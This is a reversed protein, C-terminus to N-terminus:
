EAYTITIESVQAHGNSANNTFVIKNASGTWTVTDTAAGEVNGSNAVINSPNATKGEKKKITIATINTTENNSTITLTNSGYMRIHVPPTGNGSKYYAPNTGSSSPKSFDISSKANNFIVQINQATDNRSNSHTDGVLEKSSDKDIVKSASGISLVEVNATKLTYAATSVESTQGSKVAIAQLTGNETVTPKNADSYMNASSSGYNEKSLTGEKQWMWYIKTGDGNNSTLNITTNAEVASGGPVSFSVPLLPLTIQEVSGSANKYFQYTYISPNSQFTYVTFVNYFEIYRTSDGANKIYFGDTSSGAKELNWVSNDTFADALSLGNSETRSLYKGGNVFVYGDTGLTKVTFQTLSDTLVLGKISVTAETGSFGTGSASSSITTKGQPYYIAVVDNDSLTTVKQLYTNTDEGLRYVASAPLSFIGRTAGGDSVTKVAIANITVTDNQNGTIEIGKSADYKFATAPDASAKTAYNEKTIESGDTTYYFDVDLSDSTLYTVIGSVITQGEQTSSVSFKPTALSNAQLALSAKAKDNLESSKSPDKYFQFQFKTDASTPRNYVTFGSYFELSRRNAGFIANASHILFTNSGESIAAVDWLALYSFTDALTLSNGTAGSTLYKGGSVFVYQGIENKFVTLAAMADTTTFSGSEDPTVDAKSLESGSATSLMVNKGTPYYIYVVDDAEPAANMLTVPLTYAASSPNGAHAAGVAIAYITTNATIEIGDGAQDYVTGSTKYNEATLATSTSYYITCSEEGEAPTASLKVKTGSAVTGAVPNFTVTGPAQTLTYTASTVESTTGTSSRVAVAYITCAKTIPVSVTVNATLTMSSLMDKVNEATIANAPDIAYYIEADSTATDLRVQSGSNVAGGNPSFTVAAVPEEPTDPTSPGPCGVTFIIAATALAAAFLNRLTKMSEGTISGTQLPSWESEM